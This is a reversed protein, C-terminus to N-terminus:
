QSCKEWVGFREEGRGEGGPIIEAAMTAGEGDTSLLYRKEERETSELEDLEPPHHYVAPSSTHRGGGAAGQEENREPQPM